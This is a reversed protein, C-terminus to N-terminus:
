KLADIEVPLQHIDERLAKLEQLIQTLLEVIARVDSADTREM